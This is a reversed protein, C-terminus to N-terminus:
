SYLVTLADFFALLIESKTSIVGMRTFKYVSVFNIKLRNNEVSRAAKSEIVQFSLRFYVGSVYQINERLVDKACYLM